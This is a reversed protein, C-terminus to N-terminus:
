RKPQPAVRENQERWPLPEVPRQSEYGALASRHRVPPAYAAPDSPDPGVLPSSPGSCGSLLVLATCVILCRSGRRGVGHRSCRAAQLLVFM